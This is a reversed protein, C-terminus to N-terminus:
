RSPVKAVLKRPASSTSAGEASVEVQLQVQTLQFEGVARVDALFESVADAVKKMNGRLEKVPISRVQTEATPEQLGRRGRTPDSEVKSGHPAEVIFDVLELDSM